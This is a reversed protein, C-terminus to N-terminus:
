PGLSCIYSPRQPDLGTLPLVNKELLRDLYVCSDFWLGSWLRDGRSTVLCQDIENIGCHM